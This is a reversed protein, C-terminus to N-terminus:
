LEYINEFLFKPVWLKMYTGYEIFAETLTHDFIFVTMILHGINLHFYNLCM